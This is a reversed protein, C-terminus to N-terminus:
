PTRAAVGCGCVLSFGHVDFGSVSAQDVAAVDEEDSLEDEDADSGGAEQEVAPEALGRNAATTGGM